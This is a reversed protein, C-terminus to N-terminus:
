RFYILSSMLFPPRLSHFKCYLVTSYQISRVLQVTHEDVFLLRRQANSKSNENIGLPSNNCKDLQYTIFLKNTHHLKLVLVLLTGVYARKSHTHTRCYAINIVSSCNNCIIIIISSEHIFFANQSGESEVRVPVTRHSYIKYYVTSGRNGTTLSRSAAFAILSAKTRGNGGYQCQLSKM